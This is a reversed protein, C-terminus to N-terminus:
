SRAGAAVMGRQADVAVGAVEIRGRTSALEIQVFAGQGRLRWEQQHEQLVGPILGSEGPMIPPIIAYSERYPTAFDDDGNTPDWEAQGYPRRYKTRDETVSAVSLREAYGDQLAVVTYAAHHTAMRVAARNFRKVGAVRGGYGRTRVLTEIAEHTIVGESTGVDDSYGDEYLCVFGDTSVFGPRVAGNVSFKLARAVKVADGSDYGAWKQALTSYVLIANNFDAGDIPVAFCVRNEHAWAVAGAAANWNVRDILPQIARSVPVDVGQLANTETQRISCVGRRHGLFWVDSGVQVFSRPAVCGYQRTVEDLKANAALQENTGSVNAVVYISREKAAILTTDNFKFLAVLRDASGQNIKFSQYVADGQLVSSVGGIDSVWVTDVYAAGRRGDVAFLRNAFFIAQSTPPLLEKGAEPAPLAVFGEDLSSLYLPRLDRGRLLVLGNYTQVLDTASALSEGSAVPIESVLNGPRARWAGAATVVVQWEFGSIPDSYTTAALVSGFPRVVTVADGSERKAAWTQIRIGARTAARGTDFRANRAYAVEGDELAAPDTLANVGYFRGDGDAGPADDLPFYARHRNM